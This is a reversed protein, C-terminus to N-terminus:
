CQSRVVVITRDIETIIRVGLGRFCQGLGRLMLHRSGAETRQLTEAFPVDTPQAAPRGAFLLISHYLPQPRLTKLKIQAFGFAVFCAVRSVPCIYRLFVM